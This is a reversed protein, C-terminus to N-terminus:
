GRGSLQPPMGWKRTRFGILYGLTDEALKHSAGLDRDRLTTMLSSIMTDIQQKTLQPYSIEREQESLRPM